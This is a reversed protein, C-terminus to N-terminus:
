CPQKCEDQSTLSAALLVTSLGQWKKSNSSISAWLTLVPCSCPSFKPFPHQEKGLISAERCQTGRSFCSQNSFRPPLDRKKTVTNEPTRQGTQEVEESNKQASPSGPREGARHGQGEQM